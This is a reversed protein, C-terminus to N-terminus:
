ATWRGPSCSPRARSRVKAARPRARRRQGAARRAQAARRDRRPQADAPLVQLRAGRRRARRRASGPDAGRDRGAAGRALRLPQRAGGGDGRRRRSHRARVSLAGADDEQQQELAAVLNAASKEGMRELEALQEVTSSTSIPRATAGPRRRGASRHDESGLGDIDLARRSAFHRLAEKRQAPCFLGGTCRAVAEGEEREVDSGCVPCKAPLEVERADEPRRELIVKVVEPIVDGARRIVVTDGIRVDKRRVEDMNHLTANSVTVGGVFVPELRAVPTLAGTRGVQFEVGRVVTNEEHAPFKHAIAWRPARAVFGLERQQAFRNVKYVVGDIEYPLSRASRASTATTSGPMRGRGARDQLLPSVKLGWERLQELAESHRAPLKWGDTEGVGYFFVDLPRSAALRPDLQRMSGAAANRPNVFTKEGRELARENMAKFGAILM